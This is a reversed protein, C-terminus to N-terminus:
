NVYSLITIKNRLPIHNSLLQKLDILKYKPDNIANVVFM